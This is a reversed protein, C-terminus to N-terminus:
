DLMKLVAQCRAKLATPPPRTALWNALELIGREAAAPWPGCRMLTAIAAQAQQLPHPASDLTRILKRAATLAERMEITM